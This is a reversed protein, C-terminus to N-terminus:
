LRFVTKLSEAAFVPGDCVGVSRSCLRLSLGNKKCRHDLFNHKGDSCDSLIGCLAACRLVHPVGFAHLRVRRM